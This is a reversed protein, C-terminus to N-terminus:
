AGSRAVGALLVLNNSDPTSLRAFSLAAATSAGLSASGPELPAASGPLRFACVTVTDSTSTTSLPMASISWEVSLLGSSGSIVVPARAVM